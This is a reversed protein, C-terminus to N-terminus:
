RFTPEIRRKYRPAVSQAYCARQAQKFQHDDIAAVILSGFLRIACFIVIAHIIMPPVM